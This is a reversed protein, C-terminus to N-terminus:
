IETEEFVEETTEGTTVEGESSESVSARPYPEGAPGPASSLDATKRLLVKQLQVAWPKSVKMCSSCNAFNQCKQKKSYKGLYKINEGLFCQMCGFPHSLVFRSWQKQLEAKVEGNVFCYLIAILFGQFSNMILQIFLRILRSYGEVQEDPIFTFVFEHIGLLPILVLTSRALRYKYDHFNMQQAKLKSILLKLIKLFICFNVKFSFICPGRIIWWIGKNDNTAWCGTDELKSRAIGWPAVFLVPVVWGIVICRRLLLKESVVVTVLFTHLYIGEVLLWCFNAGVSYHMFFQATRCITLIEPSFYSIWGTENNPRKSYTNHLITDKILVATGRLIFSAFLNMHIYNRTCHLRRLLLLILLALVLCTLSLAYGVTYLLQLTSLLMHEEEQPNFHNEELCESNDRWIDTSNEETQWIGQDLCVRYVKRASGNELWPLYPPCPVSVNGPLSYPWCVFQDFTGNCYIGTEVASEQLKKLCKKKYNLWSTTTKKLLSGSVQKVLFLTTVISVSGPSMRFSFRMSCCHGFHTSIGSHVDNLRCVSHTIPVHFLDM